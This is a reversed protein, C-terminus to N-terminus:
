PTEDAPRASVDALERRGTLVLLIDQAPLHVSSGEGVAVDADTAILRHGKDKRGFYRLARESTNLLVLAIRGTPPGPLGLPVTMDLGHIVDHSLAGAQGGGPPRWPHRINARLSALLDDDSMTETDARASRDALRDFSFRARVMGAALGVVSTRYPMTMHAVVERVRWGACLSPAAWGDPELGTLLDALREREAFTQAALEDTTNMTDDECHPPYM